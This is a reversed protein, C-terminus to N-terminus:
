PTNAKYSESDDDLNYSLTAVSEDKKAAQEDETDDEYDDQLQRMYPYLKVTVSSAARIEKGYRYMMKWVDGVTLRRETIFSHINLLDEALEADGFTFYVLDRSCASSAMMQILGKVRSDGGFAGCGWNGTAIAPLYKQEVPSYFGCYAKDLERKLLGAQFQDTYCRFVHADIAVIKAHRRGWSDRTTRDVHDGAWRFTHAYGVYDSYREAGTIILCENSDLRECFLRSLILEPCILFRIEEQVCGEGIVGGGIYKNAFDVQLFGAGNDEITGKTSVHLKGFLATCKEWEPMISSKVMQRQFTVTGTPMEKTIRRFYHFIAQLKETKVSNTGGKGGQFLRNFNIDPFSSYESHKYSNRRPFTCFFANALLCAAQEQSMTLSHNQQRKLLPIAQTCLTPLRLALSVMAPLTQNFFENRKSADLVENFYSHLAEFNWRKSYHANYKLIADQLEASNTISGLLTAEILEWRNQIVKKEHNQGPYLNERSCPMRVHNKDWKDRYNKHSPKPPEAFDTSQSPRVLVTHDPQAVIPPLPPSCSPIRNLSQLSSGGSVFRQTTQMSLVEEPPPAPPPSDPFLLPSDDFDALNDDNDSLGDKSGGEVVMDSSATSTASTCATNSASGRRKEAADALLARKKRMEDDLVNFSESPSANYQMKQQLFTEKKDPLHLSVKSKLSSRHRKFSEEISSQKLRKRKPEEDFRANM